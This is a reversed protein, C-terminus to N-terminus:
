PTARSKCHNDQAVPQTDAFDSVDDHDIEHVTIGPPLPAHAKSLVVLNAQARQHGRASAQAWWQSAKNIDQLVGQGKAYLVGLAFQADVHGSAAAKNLWHAALQADHEFLHGELYAMGLAHQAALHQREAARKLWRGGESTEARDGSELLAMALSYQASLHSREAASRFHHLAKARDQPVGLGNAYLRGLFWHSPADAHECAAQYWRAAEAHNQPFGHGNEFLLGIAGLAKALGQEAARKWWACACAYDRKVGNGHFYLWGMNYQASPSGQEAAKEYWHAADELRSANRLSDAMWEQAVPDGDSAQEAIDEPISDLHTMHLSPKFALLFGAAAWDLSALLRGGHFIDRYPLKSSQAKGVYPSMVVPGSPGPARRHDFPPAPSEQTQQARHRQTRRPQGFLPQHGACPAQALLFAM